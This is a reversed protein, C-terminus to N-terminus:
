FRWSFLIRPHKSNQPTVITTSTSLSNCADILITVQSYSGTGSVTYMMREYLSSCNNSCLNIHTYAM